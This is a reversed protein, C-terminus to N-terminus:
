LYSINMSEFVKEGMESQHWAHVTSHIYLIHIQAVLIMWENSADDNM